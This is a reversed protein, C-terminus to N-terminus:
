RNADLEGTPPPTPELSMGPCRRAAAALLEPSHVLEPWFPFTACKEPRVPYIRCAAQRGDDLFVCRSGEGDRLTEGDARLYRSDFAEESLGLFAAIKRRDDASVRVFGGPIACCNGSRQCSFTFPYDARDM